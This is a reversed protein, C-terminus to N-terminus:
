AKDTGLEFRYGTRSDIHEHPPHPSEVEMIEGQVDLEPKLLKSMIYAGATLLDKLYTIWGPEGYPFLLPYVMPEVAESDMLVTSIPGDRPCVRM